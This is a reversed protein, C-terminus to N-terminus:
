RKKLLRGHQQYKKREFSRELCVPLALFCELGGSALSTDHYKIIDSFVKSYAIEQYDKTANFKIGYKKLWFMVPFASANLRYIVALSQENAQANKAASVICQYQHQETPLNAYFNIKGLGATPNPQMQKDARCINEEIFSKAMNVIYSGSRYNTGMVMTKVNDQLGYDLLLRPEAGRFYYISQDDDGVVFLNGQDGVLLSLLENHLTSNDQAEDISWYVYKSQLQRLIDPYKKLGLLSYYLVDDYDMCHHKDLEKQYTDYIDKVGYEKKDIVLVKEEYESPKLQRNKISTIVGSIKEKISEDKRSLKFHALVAKMITYSTVSEKDPERTKNYDDESDSTDKSMEVQNRLKDTDWVSQPMPFNRKRLLPLIEGGCFSHITRFAPLADDNDNPFKSSYRDAMEQAAARTFTLNMLTDATISMSKQGHLLYGTRAILVTTKGSGPVAFLLSKGTITQIAIKQEHNLHDFHYRECFSRLEETLPEINKEANNLKASLKLYLMNSKDDGFDNKREFTTADIINDTHEIIKRHESSLLEMDGGNDRYWEIADKENPFGKYKQGSYGRISKECNEWEQYIGPTYGNVVAYFKKKAMQLDSEM